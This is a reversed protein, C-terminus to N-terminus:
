TLYGDSMVLRRVTEAKRISPLTETLLNRLTLLRDNEDDMELLSQKQQNSLGCKPAMMYAASRAGLSEIDFSDSYGFVTSVVQNYMAVCENLLGPDTTTKVDPLLKVQSMTFHNASGMSDLITYRSRGEVVTLMSADTSTKNAEAIVASCGISRLNGGEFLNVGFELGREMCELVLEQFRPELIHLQIQVNPFLVLNSPVIGLTM